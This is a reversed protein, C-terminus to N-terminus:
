QRPLARRRAALALFASDTAESSWPTMMTLASFGGACLFAGALRLRVLLTESLSLSTSTSDTAPGEFPRDRGVGTTSTGERFDVRVCAFVFFAQPSESPGSSGYSMM